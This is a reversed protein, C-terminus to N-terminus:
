ARPKLTQVIINQYFDEDDFKTGGEALNPLIDHIEFLQVIAERHDHGKCPLGDRMADKQNEYAKKKFIKECLQQVLIKHKNAGNAHWNTINRVLANFERQCRGTLARSIAQVVAQWQGEANYLSYNTSGM